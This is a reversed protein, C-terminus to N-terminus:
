DPYVTGGHTTFPIARAGQMIYDRTEEPYSPVPLQVGAWDSFTLAILTKLRNEAIFAPFMTSDKTGNNAASTPNTWRWTITHRKNRNGVINTVTINAPLGGNRYGHLGKPPAAGPAGGELPVGEFLHRAKADNFGAAVTNITQTAHAARRQGGASALQTPFYAGTSRDPRLQMTSVRLAARSRSALARNGMVDAERELSADDNVMNGKMRLTSKVRGQAQQVLHWAEHPLHKEQGPGVQIGSGEAYAHAQLQAPKNSNYHLKVHDMSMDSLSALGSKLENPLDTNSAKEERQAPSAETPVAGDGQPRVAGGFLANLEHRQAVMRPSNHIADRLARQQLVRPSNSMMEALERQAVAASQNDVLRREQIATGSTKTQVTDSDNRSKILAQM